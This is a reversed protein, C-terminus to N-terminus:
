GEDSLKRSSNGVIEDGEDGLGSDAFAFAQTDEAVVVGSRVSGALPIIDVYDIKGAGVDIGNAAHEVALHLLVIFDVIYSGAGRKRHKFKDFSELFDVIEFQIVLECGAAVAVDGCDPSVRGKGVFFEAPLGGAGGFLSERGGPGPLFM